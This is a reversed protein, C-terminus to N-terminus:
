QLTYFGVFLLLLCQERTYIHGKESGTKVMITGLIGAVLIPIVFNLKDNLTEHYIFAVLLPVVMLLGLVQLLRGIANNVIKLNM